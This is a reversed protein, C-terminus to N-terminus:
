VKTGPRTVTSPGNGASTGSLNRPLMRDICKLTKSVDGSGGGGELIRPGRFETLQPLNPKSANWIRGRDPIQPLLITELVAAVNHYKGVFDHRLSIM